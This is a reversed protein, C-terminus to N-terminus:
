SMKREELEEQIFKEVQPLKSKFYLRLNESKAKLFTDGFLCGAEISKTSLGYRSLIDKTVAKSTAIDYLPNEYCVNLKAYLQHMEQLFAGDQEPFYEQRRAFGDLVVPINHEKAYLLALVHMAMKCGVCILNSHYEEIDTELSRLALKKFLYRSNLKNIFHM